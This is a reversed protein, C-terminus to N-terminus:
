KIFLFITYKCDIETVGEPVEMCADENLKGNFCETVMDM